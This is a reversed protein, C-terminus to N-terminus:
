HIIKEPRTGKRSLILIGTILQLISADCSGSNADYKLLDIIRSLSPLFIPITPTVVVKGDFQPFAVTKGSTSFTRLSTSLNVSSPICIIM